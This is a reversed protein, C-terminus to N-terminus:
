SSSSFFFLILRSVSRCIIVSDLRRDTATGEMRGIRKDMGCVVTVVVPPPPPCHPCLVCVSNDHIQSDRTSHAITTLDMNYQKKGRRICSLYLGVRLATM